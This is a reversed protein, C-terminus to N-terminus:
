HMQGFANNYSGNSNSLALYGFANSQSATTNAYLAYGGFANNQPYPNLHLVCSQMAFCHLQIDQFM